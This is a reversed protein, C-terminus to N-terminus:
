HTKFFNLILESVNIDRCYNGVISSPYPKSTGHWCHGGNEVTYFFVETGRKGKSFKELKVKCKDMSEKNLWEIKPIKSCRNANVYKMATERASLVLGQLNSKVEGGNYPVIPDETGHIILASIEREISFNDGVSKPMNGAVSAIATLKHSLEASLRHVMMGGNSLGCAYVRKSDINYSNLINDILRSIFLVDDYKEKLVERGDNWRGNIANPYVVAFGEKRALLSMGTSKEIDVSNELGGHLLILLPYKKDVHPARFLYERNKGNVEIKEFNNERKM